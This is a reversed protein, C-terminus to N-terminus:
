WCVDEVVPPLARTDSAVGLTSAFAKEWNGEAVIEKITTRLFDCFAQDELKFGIGWRESTFPKDTVHIKGPHLAALGLAQAGGHVVVDVGGTLLQQLCEYYNSFAVPIGGNDEVLAIPTSGVAGCGRVDKIDDLTEYKGKDEMRIMYVLGTEYYPGAQAVVTRRQPTISYSGIVADVVGSTIFTERNGSVVEEFRIAEPPLGLKEAVLRSFEIDFGTVESTAPNIIGVGPADLKTGVIFEGRQQIKHMTTGEPFSPKATGQAQALGVVASIALMGTLAFGAKWSINHM